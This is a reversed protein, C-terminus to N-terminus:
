HKENLTSAKFFLLSAINSQLERFTNTKEDDLETPVETCLFELADKSINFVESIKQLLNQSPIRKSSEVLSLYNGTIELQTSLSKQSLGM